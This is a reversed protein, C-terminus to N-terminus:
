VQACWRAVHNVIKGCWELGLTMWRSRVMNCRMAACFVAGYWALGCCVGVILRMDGCLVGTILYWVDCLVSCQM